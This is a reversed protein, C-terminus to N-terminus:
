DRLVGNPFDDVVGLRMVPGFAALFIVQGAAISLKLLEVYSLDKKVISSFHFHWGLM